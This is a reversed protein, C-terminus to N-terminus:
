GEDGDTGAGSSEDAGEDTGAGSNADTEDTVSELTEGEVDTTQAPGGIEVMRPRVDLYPHAEAQAEYGAPVPRWEYRVYESGSFATLTGHRTKHNIIAELGRAERMPEAHIAVPQTEEKKSQVKKKAM